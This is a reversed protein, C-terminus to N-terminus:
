QKCYNCLCILVYSHSMNSYICVNLREQLRPSHANTELNNLHSNSSTRHLELPILPCPPFTQKSNKNTNKLKPSFWKEKPVTKHMFCKMSFLLQKFCKKRWAESFFQPKAISRLLLLFVFFSSPAWIVSFLQSCHVLLSTDKKNSKKSKTKSCPFANWNWNCFANQRVM